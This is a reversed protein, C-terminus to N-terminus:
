FAKGTYLGIDYNPAGVLVDAYGDGDVDGAGAVCDHLHRRRRLLPDPEPRLSREGNRPLPLRRRDHERHHLEISRRHDAYGDANTAAAASGCYCGAQNVEATWSPTTPIGTASGYFAYVRGENSQGNSYRYAGVAIDDYGDRNVDGLYAVSDGFYASAQNSQYYWDATHAPGSASGYFLVAIGEAFEGLDFHPAGVLIDDYGDGNVDGATSISYGLWANALDTRDGLRPRRPATPAATLSTSRAKKWRVATTGHRGSWSTATDM